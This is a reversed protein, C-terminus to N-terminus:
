VGGTLLAHGRQEILLYLFYTLPQECIVDAPLPPSALLQGNSVFSPPWISFIAEMYDIIIQTSGGLAVCLNRCFVYTAFIYSITM